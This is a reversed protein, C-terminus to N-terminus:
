KHTSHLVYDYSLYNLLASASLERSYPVCAAAILQVDIFSSIPVFFQDSYRDVDKMGNGIGMSLSNKGGNGRVAQASHSGNPYPRGM